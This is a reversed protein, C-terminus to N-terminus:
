SNLNLKKKKRLNNEQKMGTKKKGIKKMLKMLNLNVTKRMKGTLMGSLILMRKLTNTRNGSTKGINVKKGTKMGNLGSMKTGITGNTREGNTGNKMKKMGNKKMGVTGITNGTKVSIKMLTLLIKLTKRMGTHIGVLNGIKRITGDKMGIILTRMQILTQTQPQTQVVTVGNRKMKMKKEAGGAKIDEKNITTSQLGGIAQIIGTKRKMTNMLNGGTEGTNYGSPETGNTAKTLTTEEVAITQSTGGMLLTPITGTIAQMPATGDVVIDLITEKQIIQATETMITSKTIITMVMNVMITRIINTKITRTTSKIINQITQVIAIIEMDRIILVTEMAIIEMTTHIIPSTAMAITQGIEMALTTQATEKDQITQVTVTVTTEKMIHTTQTIVMTIQIIQVIEVQTTEVINLIILVIVTLPITQGTVGVGTAQIIGDTVTIQVIGTVTIEM